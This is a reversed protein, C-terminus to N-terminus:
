ETRLSRVPNALAARFAQFSVTVMAIVISVTGALLFIWFSIDIRYAYNNLWRNMAWWALPTAILLAIFVLRMFDASLMKVIGSVSAGLVKRIGIEKTRQEATFTALGFLGLCAILISLTVLVIFIKQFDAESKYLKAFAEDLFSYQFPRDPAHAKWKKEIQALTAPMDKEALKITLNDVRRPSVIFAFPKIESKFSAFHFDKVMGVVTVYYLTDGDNGWQLQKGTVPAKLGLDRAARENIVISGINQALSRDSVNTMTDALFEKSFGRGEVLELQLVNTFDYGVSLFNILQSNTSGKANLSNTWNQGGVVGDATAMNKVAPISRLDDQLSQGGAGLAGFGRVVMVQDKNLGLKAAHIYNIQEYIVMAGAILGISITFQVVVLAKRLNFVGGAIRGGKLVSIPNFSSLYIAPFLGALLGILLAGLFFYLIVASGQGSLALHKNTVTNVVPLLVQALLLAVIAALMCLVVSELLFQRILSGNDAGSVKRVGIEKARLSARATVLNIYNIAAILIILIGIISFVYVYLKDSNPELEWKLNSGLHIGTLAQSYFINKGNANAAKYQAQIKPEVSAISTNPQLKIYTYFNYFNWDSNIDGAFKRTSILYDFHFHSNSPPDKLVATVMLDGLRDIKIVKGMPDEAGFYKKASTETLAISNIERFVNKQNGKVFPFSFVDFFSSDVRYLQTEYIHKDQYNFLFNAGWGPFVRTVREIGPINKQMAPALAPPTTADPLRTGDDNVFDKVVRYVRDSGAHFRDYSTEDAVFLFILLSCALGSALGFINIFSLTKNKWLNRLAIRFYNRFM